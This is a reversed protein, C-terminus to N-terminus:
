STFLAINITRWKIPIQPIITITQPHRPDIFNLAQQTINWSLSLPGDSPDYNKKIKGLFHPNNEEHIYPEPNDTDPLDIFAKLEIECSSDDIPSLDIIRFLAKDLKNLDYLHGEAMPRQQQVNIPHLETSSSGEHFHLNFISQRQEGKLNLQMLDAAIHPNSERSLIYAMKTLAAEPTIDMGSVVGRSLLGASADYLGLEVDGSKCQTVNVFVIGKKVADDIVDLFEPTTPANGTGYTKLIVGKLDETDFINKLLNISMGPFIDLSAINEELKEHTKLILRAPKRTASENVVIHEGANALPPYNPSDFASYASASLKTTRCGRFLHDRFFVSIEPIVPRNLSRAAAIEIASVLNQAADSRTEGIPKQSGTIVIPKGLNDLMFTLVSATYAMTDTGHLIVFGEWDNYNAKILRALKKWHPPAINSSDIPSDWSYTGLRIWKGNSVGGLFINKNTEDYNPLWKMVQELKRPVLPSMPDSEDKPLCGITGGTYIIFVGNGKTNM